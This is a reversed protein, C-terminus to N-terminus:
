SLCPGDSEKWGTIARPEHQEFEIHLHIPGNAAVLADWGVEPRCM